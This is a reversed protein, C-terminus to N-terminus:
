PRRAGEVRPGPRGLHEAFYGLIRGYLRQAVQPEPVMHTLGSLPLFEFGKGARFLADALKLSHAFYVNDDATGHIILLPRSLRAVHSVLNTARYGEPNEQPLGLYRETYHTDYDRWDAVPAGAVGVRFLDPVRMVAMAAFYGGFSWGYIGVRSLDLEPYREGLLRLTLEHDALPIGILDGKIPRRWERGRNPTGRGDIRVVVFGHDAIWQNLALDIGAARVMQATPGGYVHVIVPYVRDAQFNRPRIVVARFDHESGASTFELNLPFGPTEAVSRLRARATGDPGMAEWRTEGERTAVWRVGLTGGRNVRADHVGSEFTLRRPKGGAPDVPVLVLHTEIPDTSARVLAQRSGLMGILSQLGLSPDTLTHALSGDRKRLELELTGRREATWLFGSGDPLWAPVGPHLDLWADDTEVLLTSTSGDRPDVELLREETQRRDQVLITLPGRDEWGVRALYEYRERDWRIWTTGAGDLAVIGLEVRANPTGPRPYPWRQPPVEPRALDAVTMRDVGSTDTRQYVIRRSDPSWWFGHHRGMEEQAVFEALGNTIGESAGETLRREVGSGIDIVYLEGQRVCAVKTVDPSLQPDVAPGNESRLERVVGSGRELVFLRGSLPVLIRRGDRSLDYSAIGRAVMRLRERRAKEESTVTEEAGGLLAEARLVVREEGTSLDLEYLDQVFSRPGSRLFLVKTGDPAPEVAVPQGLRFRHTAAYRELFGPDPVGGHEAARPGSGLSLGLLAAGVRRSIEGPM